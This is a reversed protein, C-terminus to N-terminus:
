NKNLSPVVLWMAGEYEQLLKVRFLQHSFHSELVDNVRLNSIDYVHIYICTYSM